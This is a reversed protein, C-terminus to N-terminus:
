GARPELASFCALVCSIEARGEEECSRLALHFFGFAGVGWRLVGRGGCAHTTCADLGAKVRGRGRLQEEACGQAPAGGGVEVSRAAAGRRSCHAAGARARAGRCTWNKEVDLRAMGVSVSRVDGGRGGRGTLLDACGRRRAWSLHCSLDSPLMRAFTYPLGPYLSPAGEVAGASYGVARQAEDSPLGREERGGRRREVRGKYARGEGQSSRARSRRFPSFLM